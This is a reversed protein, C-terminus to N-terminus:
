SPLAAAYTNDDHVAVVANGDDGAACTNGGRVVVAVASNGGDDAACTSGGRVEVVGNSGLHEGAVSGDSNSFYTFALREPNAKV